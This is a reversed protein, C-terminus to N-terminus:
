SGQENTTHFKKKMEYMKEDARMLTNELYKDRAPDFFCYGISLSFPYETDENIKEAERLISNQIQDLGSQSFTSSLITFEDGGSRCIVTDEGKYYKKLLEAAHCIAEDGFVHGYRDNIKKLSNLDCMTVSITSKQEPTGNGHTGLWTQMVLRNDCKTMPDVSALQKFYGAQKALITRSNIVTYEHHIICGMMITVGAISLIGFSMPLHIVILGLADFIIFLGLLLVGVFMYRLRENKYYQWERFLQFLMSAIVLGLLVMYPIIMEYYDRIALFQLVTSLIFEFCLALFMIANWEKWRPFLTKRYYLLFSIVAMRVSVFASISVTTNADTYFQSARSETFIWLGIWIMFSAICMLSKTDAHKNSLVTLCHILLFLGILLYVFGIIARWMYSRAFHILLSSKTGLFFKNATIQYDKYPSTVELTVTKGAADEPLRVIWIFSGSTKELKRADLYPDSTAAYLSNDIYLNIKQFASRIAFSDYPIQSDAPLVNSIRVGNEINTSPIGPLSVSSTKGDPTIFTWGDSLAFCEENMFGTEYQPLFLTFVIMGLAMALTVIFPVYARLGHM